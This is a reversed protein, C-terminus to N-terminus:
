VTEPEPIATIMVKNVRLKDMDIVEFRMGQFDWYDGETPIRGLGAVVFGGLSHYGDSHSRDHDDLGLQHLVDSVDMSADVLFSGDARKMMVANGPVEADVVGVMAEFLDHATVLGDVSGHEDVVVALGTGLDRIQELLRLVSFRAPLRLPERLHDRISHASDSNLLMGIQKLSIIGLMQDLDGDAVPFWTHPSEVARAWSKAVSDHVDLWVVDVRPTMISAIQRDGLRFVRHVIRAESEEIAGSASGQTIVDRIDEETVQVEEPIRFPLLKLFFETSRDLLLVFPGFVRAAGMLPPGFIVAIREPFAMALRKPLLEGLVLSLYTIFGVVIGLAIGDAYPAILPVQALVKSLTTTLTAGGYAGAFIGVLTIGMQVTALFTNPERALALAVKARRSGGRAERQLRAQRASVISLESMALIGNLIVLVIIVSVEFAINM